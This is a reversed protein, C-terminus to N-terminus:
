EEKFYNEVIEKALSYEFGRRVLFEVAKKKFDLEPLNKWAKLKKELAQKALDEESVESSQGSIVEEIIERDIGKQYLEAKIANTGKQKNRRRSEVWSVAFQTDNIMEKQKLKEILSEIVVESLQEDGKLKRKFNLGRLYNRVEKESRLRVSFLNYMRGMLLGVETEFLIKPLDEPFIEKSVLLRYDVVTDEDAGFAFQGDLYINFRHSNKKQPEIQTIKPM